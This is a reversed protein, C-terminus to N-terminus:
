VYGVVVRDGAVLGSRLLHTQLLRIVPIAGEIRGVLAGASLAFKGAVYRGGIEELEAQLQELVELEYSRTEFRVWGEDVLAYRAGLADMLEALKTPVRKIPGGFEVTRYPDFENGVRRDAEFVEATEHVWVVIRCDWEDVLLQQRELWGLARTHDLLLEVGSIQKITAVADRHATEGVAHFCLEIFTAVRWSVSLRREVFGGM